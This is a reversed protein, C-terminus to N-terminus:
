KGVEGREFYHDAEFRFIWPGRLEVQAASFTLKIEKGAPEAELEIYETAGTAEDQKASHSIRDLRIGYLSRASSSNYHLDLYVRLRKEGIRETRTVTVPFGALSFSRNLHEMNRVPVKVTAEDKFEAHVAPIQLTYSTSGPHLEFRFDKAPAAIGRIPEIGLARGSDDAVSLKEDSFPRGSLGYDMVTMDKAHRSLLTLRGREGDLSPVATISIGNHDVTQGMEEYSSFADAQELTLTIRYGNEQGFVLTVAENMIDLKGAYWYDASWLNTSWSAMSRRVIFEKGASNLLTITEPMQSPNDGTMTLYTMEGDAVVATVTVTGEGASAEVPQKLVYRESAADVQRVVGIGPIFQIAKQIAAIVKPQSGNINFALLLVMAGGLAAAVLSRRPLRIVSTKAGRISAETMRDAHARDIGSMSRVRLEPPLPINDFDRKWDTTM